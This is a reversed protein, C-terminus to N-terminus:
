RHASFPADIADAGIQALGGPHLAAQLPVGKQAPDKLLLFLGQQSGAASLGPPLRRGGVEGGLLREQFGAAHPEAPEGQGLDGHQAPLAARGVIGQLPRRSGPGPVPPDDGVQGQAM